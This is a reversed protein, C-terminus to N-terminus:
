PLPLRLRAESTTTLVHLNRGQTMGAPLANRQLLAGTFAAGSEELFLRMWGSRGRALIREYPPSLRPVGTGGLPQLFQCSAHQFSFRWQNEVNDYLWGGLLGLGSLPRTLDGGLRNLVLLSQNGEEPSGLSSIALTRPLVGYSRGDFSLTSLADMAQSGTTMLDGEPLLAPIAMAALAAAHSSETRVFVQGLLHNFSIPRGESDTAMVLLYGTVDPDLDSALYTVTQNATLAARLSTSLGSSGQILFLRFSVSRTPHSNTLSIRSDASRRLSSSTYLNFVLLSGARQAAIPSFAPLPAGPGPLETPALVFLSLRVEGTQGCLDRVRITLTHPGVPAAREISLTGQPDITVTGTFRGQDVIQYALESSGTGVTSPVSPVVRLSAGEVVTQPGPYSPLPLSPPPAPCVASLQIFAVLPDHDSLRTPTTAQNRATEPFDANLRAAELRQRRTTSLIVRNVLIHDLSQASGDFLYSYRETPVVQGASGM